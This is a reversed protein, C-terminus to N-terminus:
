VFCHCSGTKDVDVALKQAATARVNAKLLSMTLQPSRNTLHDYQKVAQKHKMETVQACMNKPCGFMKRTKDCHTISHVKESCWFPRSSVVSGIKITITFPFVSQLDDVLKDGKRKLVIVEDEDLDPSRYMHYWELYQNVVTIIPVMPDAMKRGAAAEAEIEPQVLGDLVFPLVLMFAQVDSADPMVGENAALADFMNLISQQKVFSLLTADSVSRSSCLNHLRRSIRAILTNPEIGLDTELQRLAMIIAKIIKMAVGHEFAHM